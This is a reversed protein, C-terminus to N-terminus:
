KPEGDAISYITVGKRNKDRTIEHGKKRLGTLAARVSHPKWGTAEQLQNLAAGSKRNILRIIIDPKTTRAPM